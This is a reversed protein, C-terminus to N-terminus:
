EVVVSKLTLGQNQLQTLITLLQDVSYEENNMIFSGTPTYGETLLNAIDQNSAAGLIELATSLMQTEVDSMEEDSGITFLYFGSESDTEGDPSIITTKVQWAYINGEELSPARAPYIFPSNIDEAIFFPNDLDDLDTDSDELEYLSLEFNAQNSSWTFAPTSTM